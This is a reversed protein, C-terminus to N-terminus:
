DNDPSTLPATRRLRNSSALSRATKLRRARSGLKANSVTGLSRLRRPRTYAAHRNGPSRGQSRRADRPRRICLQGDGRPRDTVKAPERCRVEFLYSPPRLARSSDGSHGSLEDVAVEVGLVGEEVAGAPDSGEHLARLLHADGRQREGIVARQVSRDLEVLLGARVADRGDDPHLGVDSRPPHRIPVGLQVRGREMEHQQRRVRLSVPIEEPEGRGRMEVAEVVLRPDVPLAEAAVGGAQDTERAAELTLHRARQQPVVGGRRPVQGGGVAVDETGPIEEELHLVVAKGVLLGQDLPHDGEGAVEPQREDGGIVDM